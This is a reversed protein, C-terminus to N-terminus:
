IQFENEEEKKIEKLKKNGGIIMILGLVIIAVSVAGGTLSNPLTPIYGQSFAQFMATQLALVSVLADAFSINKITQIIYDKKKKAKVLNYISLGLKYFTYTAMVYIMLGAYEFGQNVIVMQVVAAILAINLLILYIGCNRYSKVQSELSYQKTQKKRKRSIVVVGGRILTLAIYYIALVGYWVSHSLIAFVAQFIAYALNIVFSFIAFIVSRYGFSTLLENTFKHKKLTNLVGEKMKPAYYVIIYVLYTLAIASIAYLIYSLISNDYGLVVLVVTLAIVLVAVISFLISFLVSPTKLKILLEKFKNM